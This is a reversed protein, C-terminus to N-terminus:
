DESITKDPRNQALVGLRYVALKALEQFSTLTNSSRVADALDLYAEALYEALAAIDNERGPPLGATINHLSVERPDIADLKSAADHASAALAASSEGACRYPEEEILAALRRELAALSSLAVPHECASVEQRAAHFARRREARLLSVHELEDLAMQEAARKVDPDDAHASVYTWFAFSREEHRVASALAKYPTLLKSRAAEEPLTDFTDPVPWPLAVDFSLGENRHAWTDVQAIHGRETKALDDFLKALAHEGRQHLLTATEAYRGAAEVEMTRALAFFERISRIQGAPESKLKSM